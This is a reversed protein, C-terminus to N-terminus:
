AERRMWAARGGVCCRREAEQRPSPARSINQHSVSFGFCLTASNTVDAVAMSLRPEFSNAEPELRGANRWYSPKSDAM